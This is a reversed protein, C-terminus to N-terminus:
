SELVHPGLESFGHGRLAANTREYTVSADAAFGLKRHLQMLDICVEVLLKSTVPLGEVALSWATRLPAVARKNFDALQFATAARRFYQTAIELKRLKRALEATRHQLWPAGPLEDAARRYLDLAALEKGSEALKKADATWREVQAELLRRRRAPDENVHPYPARATGFSKRRHTWAHFHPQAGSEPMEFGAAHLQSRLREM